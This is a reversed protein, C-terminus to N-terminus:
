AEERARKKPIYSLIFDHWSVRHTKKVWLREFEEDTFDRVDIRHKGSAARYLGLHPGKTRGKKAKLGLLMERWSRDPGKVEILADFEEDTFGRQSLVRRVKERNM